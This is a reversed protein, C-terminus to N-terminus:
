RVEKRHECIAQNNIVELPKFNPYRYKQCCSKSFTNGWVDGTNWYACHECQRCYVVKSNDSLVEDKYRESLTEM